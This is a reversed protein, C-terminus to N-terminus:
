SFISEEEKSIGSCMFLYSVYLIKAGIHVKSQESIEVFGSGLLLEKSSNVAHYATCAENM